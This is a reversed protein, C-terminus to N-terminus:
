IHILSLELVFSSDFHVKRVVYRLTPFLILIEIYFLVYWNHVMIHSSLAFMETMIDGFLPRYGFAVASILIPIFIIWYDFLFLVIKRFYYKLGKDNIYFIWGTLFSFLGVCIKTANSVYEPIEGLIGLSIDGRITNPFGYFHHIIMLIIAIGKIISSQTRNMQFMQEKKM